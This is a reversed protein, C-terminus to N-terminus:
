SLIYVPKGHEPIVTHLRGTDMKYLRDAAAYYTDDHTIAIMSFGENRIYPIIETYFKRKFPPDQDAAFEDLVLIPKKELMAAILALRKRQGASLHVTSFKDKQVSVKRELEFMRLYEQAKEVDVVPIGYFEDFLHYDNFVPAFLRQYDTWREKEVLAGNVYTLGEDARFLGILINLFTTKGSGNGGSIFVVEGRSLSLDVPGIAFPRDGEEEEQRYQYCIHELKLEEFFPYPKGATNDTDIADMQSEIMNIRKLSANAQTLSPIMLVLTEIPGFVYLILFIFNVVVRDQISFVNGLFLLLLGIFVYFSMIGIIRNNLFTVHAKRYLASAGLISKKVHKDAIDFGKRKELTIEKFGSLIENLYKIFTDQFTMAKIFLKRARGVYFFYIALTVVLLVLICLLLQWAIIGMYIFCILVIASNTLVDVINVSANVIIDTDRTLATFIKEKSKWVNLFPSRLVMELVNMRTKILLKQTFGIIAISVLWRSVVFLVLAGLFYFFYSSAIVKTGTFYQNIIQNIMYIVGMSGVAALISLCTFLLYSRLHGKRINM